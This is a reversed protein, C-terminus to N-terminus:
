QLNQQQSHQIQQKRITLYYKDLLKTDLQQTYHKNHYKHTHWDTWPETQGKHDVCSM